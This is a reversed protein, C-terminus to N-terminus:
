GADDGEEKGRVLGLRLRIHRCQRSRNSAGASPDSTLLAEKVAGSYRRRRNM